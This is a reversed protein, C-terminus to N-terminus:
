EGNRSGSLQGILNLLATKSINGATDTPLKEIATLIGQAAKQSVPEFAQSQAFNVVQRAGLAGVVPGVVPINTSSGAMAGILDYFYKGLRGGKVSSDHMVDLFKDAAILEGERRLFEQTGPANTYVFKRAVDGIAREIDVTDPNWVKNMAERINNVTKTNLENGYSSVYDDFISDLQKLTAGVKGSAKLNENGKILTAVENKLDSLQATATSENVRTAVDDNMDNILRRLEERAADTKIKGDVVKPIIKEKTLTTIPDSVLTRKGDVTVYRSNKDFARKLTKTADTQELLANKPTHSALDQVFKTVGGIVAGTAFGMAGGKAAGSLVGEGETLSNASGFAAGSIGGSIGSRLAAQGVTNGTINLANGVGSSTPMMGTFSAVNLGTSIASGIVERNSLGGTGIDTIGETATKISSSLDNLAKDLRSTDEGRAKKEKILSVLRNQTDMAMENAKIVSDQTGTANAWAQGIGRGFEDMNLFDAASRLLGKQKFTQTNLTEYVRGRKAIDQVQAASLGRKRLEKYQERTVTDM